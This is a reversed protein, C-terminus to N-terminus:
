MFFQQFEVWLIVFILMEFTTAQICFSSELRFLGYFNNPLNNIVQRLKHKMNDIIEDKDCPNKM